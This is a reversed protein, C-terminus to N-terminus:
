FKWGLEETTQVDIVLVVSSCFVPAVVM